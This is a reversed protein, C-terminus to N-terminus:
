LENPSSQGEILSAFVLGVFIMIGGVYGTFSLLEGLMIFSFIATVVPEFCLTVSAFVASIHSLATNQLIYVIVTSILTLYLFSLWGSTSISLLMDPTEFVLAFPLSFLSTVACQLMSIPIAGISSVYKAAFVLWLAGTLSAMLAMFEGLGFGYNSNVGCLMYMGVVVIILLPYMKKDVKTRYILFGLFPTFVVAIGMLFGAVTAATFYLSMQAFIYNVASFSSVLICGKLNKRSLPKSNGKKYIVYFILAALGFRIVLMYLPPFTEYAIKSVPSGIGWLTTSIIMLLGYFHKSKVNAAM